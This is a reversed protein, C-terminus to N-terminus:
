ASGDTLSLQELTAAGTQTGAEPEFKETPVVVTLQETLSAALLIAAHLKVTVTLGIACVM